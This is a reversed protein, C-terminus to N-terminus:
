DDVILRENPPGNGLAELGGAVVDELGPARGLREAEHVRIVVVDTHGDEIEPQWVGAIEPEEAMDPM